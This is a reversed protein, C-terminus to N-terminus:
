EVNAAQEKFQDILSKLSLSHRTMELSASKSGMTNAERLMEQSLFDLKRGVPGDSAILQRAEKLHAELRDIEETVDAKTVLIAVEQELREESFKSDELLAHVRENLRKSIQGPQVESTQVAESVVGSMDRIVRELVAKLEAGETQRAVVLKALASKVTELVSEQVSDPLSVESSGRETTLVGKVSLLDVSNVKGRGNLSRDLLRARRALATLLATDMQLASKDRTERLSLSVQANGRSLFSKIVGRIPAELAECGNPLHLRVDLGRGNVTKIEFHWSYNQTEGSEAAFGTMSSLM